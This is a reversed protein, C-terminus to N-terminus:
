AVKSIITRKEGDTEWRFQSPAKQFHRMLTSFSAACQRWMAEGGSARRAIVEIDSAEAVKPCQQMSRPKSRKKAVCLQEGRAEFANVDRMSCIMENAHTPKRTKCKAAVESVSAAGEVSALQSCTSTVGGHSSGGLVTQVEKAFNRETLNLTQHSQEFTVCITCHPEEASIIVTGGLPVNFHSRYSTASQKKSLVFTGVCVSRSSLNVLHHELCADLYLSTSEMVDVFQGNLLLRFMAM